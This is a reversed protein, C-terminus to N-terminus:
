ISLPAVVGATQVCNHTGSEGRIRYGRAFLRGLLGAVHGEVRLSVDFFHRAQVEILTCHDYFRALDRLSERHTLLLNVDSLDKGLFCCLQLDCWLCRLLRFSLHHRQTFLKFDVVEIEVQFFLPHATLPWRSGGVCDISMELLLPRVFLLHLLYFSDDLFVHPFRFSTSSGPFLLRFFSIKRGSRSPESKLM